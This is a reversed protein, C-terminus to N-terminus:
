HKEDIGDTFRNNTQLDIIPDTFRNNTPSDIKADM